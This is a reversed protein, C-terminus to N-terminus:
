RGSTEDKLMIFNGQRGTEGRDRRHSFFLDPRCCTCQGSSVINESRLGKGLLQYFNALPLDLNWREFPFTSRFFRGSGSHHCMALYVRRDVEYCCPGISPGIAALMEAPRCQFEREMVEVVRATIQLATGGWGAHIAGVVRLRPDLLFVPVCDATRICLAVNPLQTVCADGVPVQRDSARAPDERIVLVEDGHVQNLVCFSQVPIDFSRSLIRWNEEVREKEDGQATTMNLSAFDGQSVGGRRSCFAHTLFKFDQFNPAQLFTVSSRQAIQFL